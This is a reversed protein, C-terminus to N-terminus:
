EGFEDVSHGQLAGQIAREMRRKAFEASAHDLDSIALNIRDHDNTQLAQGLKAEAAAIAEREGPALLGADNKLAKHLDNLVRQAEVKSEAALRM